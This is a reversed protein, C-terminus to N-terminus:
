ASFITTAVCWRKTHAICYGDRCIRIDKELSDAAERLLAVNRRYALEDDAAMSM